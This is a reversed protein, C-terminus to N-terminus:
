FEVDQGHGLADSTRLVWVMMLGWFGVRWGRFVGDVEERVMSWLTGLVGRYPAVCVITMDPKTYALQARRLVTEFPLRIGLDVFSAIFPLSYRAPSFTVRPLYPRLTLAFLSSLYNPITAHLITPLILSRPILGPIPETRTPPTRPSPVPLM